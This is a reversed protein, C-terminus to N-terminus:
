VNVVFNFRIVFAFLREENDYFHDARKVVTNSIKVGSNTGSFRNLAAIVADRLDNAETFTKSFGNVAWEEFNLSSAADKTENYEISNLTYTICPDAAEQPAIMPYIRTGVLASVAGDASLLNYIVKGVAAM